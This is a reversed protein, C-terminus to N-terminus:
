FLFLEDVFVWADDGKNPHWPPLITPVLVIKMFRSDVSIEEEFLATHPSTNEPAPDLDFSSTRTFDNGDDSEWLEVRKPPFIHAYMVVGWSIMLKSPKVSGLDLGFEANKGRYGVWEISGFDGPPALESDFLSAQLAGRYKPDPLTLLRVSDPVMGRKVVQYVATDSELWGDKRAVAYFTAAQDFAIPSTYTTRQGEDLSYVIEAGKVPHQFIVREDNGVVRSRNGLIPATLAIPPEDDVRYGLDLNVTERIALSDVNSNWAYIKLHDFGQIHSNQVQTGAIGLVSLNELQQLQVLGEGSISTFNLFLRRLNPFNLLMALHEDSIPMYSLDLDEVFEGVIELEKVMGPEFSAAVFFQVALGPDDPSLAAVHRFANNLRKVKEMDAFQTTTETESDMRTVLMGLESTPNLEAVTRSVDAGEVIWLKLLNREEDTLQTRGPPPMHDDHTLPLSIRQILLSSDPDGTKWLSGSKGGDVMMKHSTMNLGGKMKSDNHCGVCKKDLIPYVFNAYITEPQEDKPMVPALVFNEGHTISAGFHGTLVVCVLLLAGGVKRFRSTESTQTQLMLLGVMIAASWKHWTLTSSDGTEVALFLGMISTLMSVGLTILIAPKYVNTPVIGPKLFPVAAILVVLVIPFHLVLPHMRGLPQLWFPVVLGSDVLLLILFIGALIWISNRLLKM